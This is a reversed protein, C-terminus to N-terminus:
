SSAIGCALFVNDDIRIVFDGLPTRPEFAMFLGALFDMSHLLPDQAAGFLTALPLVPVRWDLAEPLAREIGV